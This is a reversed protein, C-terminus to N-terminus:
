ALFDFCQGLGLERARKLVEAGVAVDESGMGIM